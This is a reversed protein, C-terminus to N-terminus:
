PQGFSLLIGGGSVPTVNTPATEWIPSLAPLPPMYEISKVTGDEFYEIAKVLGCNPGHTQGCWRCPSGANTTGTTTSM